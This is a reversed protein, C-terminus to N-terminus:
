RDDGGHGSKSYRGRCRASLLGFSPEYTSFAFGEGCPEIDTIGNNSVAIDAGQRRGSNDFRRLFSLWKGNFQGQANGGAIITTGDNSWAVNYLAGATLDNTQASVVPKLTKADLISVPTEIYYGVAMRQGSPDIAIGYPHKGDLEASKAALKLDPGYRRVQGDTSSATLGGDTAFALGHISDGYDYDTLLEAGSARDLVHLGSTGELGVAVRRGDASFTVRSIADEFAGFRRLAGNSLDVVTLSHKGLKESAADSGGVALWRGDPSLATAFVKGADGEGIPWRVVRQLKGDPLSWIRVTKDNAGTALMRCAADVGIAWIPPATHMGTEIRLFPRQDPCVKIADDLEASPRGDVAGKYCGADTLRQELAKLEDTSMQAPDM